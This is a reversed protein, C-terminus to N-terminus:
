SLHQAVGLEQGIWEIAEDLLDRSVTTYHKEAITTRAHGLFLSELGRYRLNNHLLSASTKKLVKITFDIGTKKSLRRLVLRIADCKKLKRSAENIM